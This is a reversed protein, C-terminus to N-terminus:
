CAQFWVKEKRGNGEMGVSERMDPFPLEKIGTTVDVFKTSDSTGKNSEPIFDLGDYFRM